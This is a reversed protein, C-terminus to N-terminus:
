KSPWPGAGFVFDTGRAATHCDGCHASQVAGSLLGSGQEWYAFDWDGYNANFGPGRKFMLGLAVVSLGGGDGRLLKEKVIAAGPAFPYRGSDGMSALALDNDWERIWRHNGHESTSFAQELPTPARCLAFIYASVDTPGPTPSSWSQYQAIMAQFDARPDVNGSDDSPPAPEAPGDKACATALFTIVTVSGLASAARSLSHVVRCWGSSSFTTQDDIM